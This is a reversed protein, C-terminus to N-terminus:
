IAREWMIVPGDEEDVRHGIRGFGNRDLVRQSTPNDVSTEATVTNINRAKLLPLLSAVATSAYGKQQRSAAVGYGIEARGDAETKLGIIGVVEHQDVMLWNAPLERVINLVEAPALDPAISWPHCVAETGLLWDFDAATAPYLDLTPIADDRM